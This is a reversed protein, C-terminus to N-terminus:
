LSEFSINEIKLLQEKYSVGGAFGTLSGNKGIVRHCPYIIAIPNKGLAAGVARSAKPRGIQNALDGYSIFKGHPINAIFNWVEKQFDTGYFKAKLKFKKREGRLYQEIQEKINSQTPNNKKVANPFMKKLQSLSWGVYVIHEQENAILYSKNEIRYQFYEVRHHM